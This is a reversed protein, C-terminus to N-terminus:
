TWKKLEILLMKADEFSSDPAPATLLCGVYGLDVHVKSYTTYKGM